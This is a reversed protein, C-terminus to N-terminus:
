LTVISVQLHNSFINWLKLTFLLKMNNKRNHLKRHNFHWSFIFLDNNIFIDQYCESNDNM